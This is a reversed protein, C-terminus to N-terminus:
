QHTLLKVPLLAPKDQEHMFKELRKMPWPNQSNSTRLLQTNKENMTHTLVSREATQQQANRANSSALLTLPPGSGKGSLMPVECRGPFLPLKWSGLGRSKEKRQEQKRRACTGKREEPAKAQQVRPDPLECPYCPTYPTHETLGGSFRKQSKAPGPTSPVCGSWTHQEESEPM